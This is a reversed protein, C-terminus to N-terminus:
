CSGTNETHVPCLANDRMLVIRYNSYSCSVARQGADARDQLRQVFLVCRTTGSLCLGTNETRVPYMANDRM